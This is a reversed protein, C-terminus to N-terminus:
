HQLSARLKLLDEVYNQTDNKFLVKSLGILGNLKGQAQVLYTYFELLCGAAVLDVIIALPDAVFKTPGLALALALVENVTM